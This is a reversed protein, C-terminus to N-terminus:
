KRFKTKSKKAELQSLTEEHPRGPLTEGIDGLIKIAWPKPHLVGTWSRVWLTDGDPLKDPSSSLIAKVLKTDYKRKHEKPTLDRIAIQTEKNQELDALAPTFTVYEKKM